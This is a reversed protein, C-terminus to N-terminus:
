KTSYKSTHKLDNKCIYKVPFNFMVKPVECSNDYTIRM